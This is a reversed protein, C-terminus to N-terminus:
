KAGAPNYPPGTEQHSKFNRFRETHKDSKTNDLFGLVSMEPGGTFGVPGWLKPGELTGHALDVDKVFM